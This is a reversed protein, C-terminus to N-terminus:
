ILYVSGLFGVTMLVFIAFVVYRCPCRVFLIAELHLNNKCLTSVASRKRVGVHSELLGQEWPLKMCSALAPRASILSSYSGGGWGMRDTLIIPNKSVVGMIM